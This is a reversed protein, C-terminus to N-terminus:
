ILLIVLFLGTLLGMSRYLTSRSQQGAEARLLLSQLQERCLSLASLQGDLDTSGLTNGVQLLITQEEQPLPHLELARQWCDPFPAHSPTEAADTLFFLTQYCPQAALTLLLDGVTPLTYRLLNMMDNLLQILLRLQMVRQSLRQAALMGGTGCVAAILLCGFLKM